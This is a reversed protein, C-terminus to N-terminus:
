ALIAKPPSIVEVRYSKGDSTEFSGDYYDVFVVKKTLLEGVDTDDPMFHFTRGVVPPRVAEGIYEASDAAWFRVRM